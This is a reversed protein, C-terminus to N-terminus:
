ANKQKELLKNIKKKLTYKNNEKIVIIWLYAIILLLGINKYILILISSGATLLIMLINSIKNLIDETIGKKDKIKIIAKLIGDESIPLTINGIITEKGTGNYILKIQANIYKIITDAEKTKNIQYAACATQFMNWCTIINKNNGKCNATCDNLMEIGVDALMVLLKHYTCVYKAPIVMYVFDPNAEVLEESNTFVQSFNTEPM